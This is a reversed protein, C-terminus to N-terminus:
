RNKKDSEHLFLRLGLESEITGDHVGNINRSHGITIRSQGRNLFNLFQVKSEDGEHCGKM